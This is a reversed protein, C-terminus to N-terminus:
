FRGRTPWAVPNPSSASSRGRRPCTPAPHQPKGSFASSSSGNGREDVPRLLTGLIAV